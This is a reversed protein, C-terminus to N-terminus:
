QQYNSDQVLQPQCNFQKDWEKGWTKIVGKKRQDVPNWGARWNVTHISPLRIMWTNAFRGRKWLLWWFYWVTEGLEQSELGGPHKWFHPSKVGLISPSFLPFGGFFIRNKPFGGGWKKCCSVGRWSWCFLRSQGPKITADGGPTM